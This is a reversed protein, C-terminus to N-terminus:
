PTRHGLRSSARTPMMVGNHCYIGVRVERFSSGANGAGRARCHRRASKASHVQPQISGTAHGRARPTRQTDFDAIQLCLAGRRIAVRGESFHRYRSSRHPAMRRNKRKSGLSRRRCACRRRCAASYPGVRWPWCGRRRMGLSLSPARARGRLGGSGLADPHTRLTDSLAPFRPRNAIRFRIRGVIKGRVAAFTSSEGWCAVTSSPSRLARETRAQVDMPQDLVKPDSEWGRRGSQFARSDPQRTTPKQTWQCRM